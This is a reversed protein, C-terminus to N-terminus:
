RRHDHRYLIVRYDALRFLGAGARRVDFATVQGQPHGRSSERSQRVAEALFPVIVLTSQRQPEREVVEASNVHREVFRWSHGASKLIM